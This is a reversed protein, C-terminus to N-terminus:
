PERGRRREKGCGHEVAGNAVKTEENGRPDEPEEDRVHQGNATANTTTSKAVEPARLEKGSDIGASAVHKEIYKDDVLVEGADSNAGASKGSNGKANAKPVHTSAATQKAAKTM